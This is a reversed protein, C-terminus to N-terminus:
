RFWGIYIYIYPAINFYSIYNINFWVLEIFLFLIYLNIYLDYAMNNLM